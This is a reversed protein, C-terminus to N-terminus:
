VCDYLVYTGTDWLDLGNNGNDWIPEEGERGEMDGQMRLLM